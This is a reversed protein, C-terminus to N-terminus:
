CVTPNICIETVEIVATNYKYTDINSYCLQLRCLTSFEKVEWWVYKQDNHVVLLGLAVPIASLTTEQESQISFIAKLM